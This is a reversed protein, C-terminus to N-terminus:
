SGTLCFDFILLGSTPRIGSEPLNSFVKGTLLSYYDGIYYGCDRGSAFTGNTAYFSTPPYSIFSTPGFAKTWVGIGNGYPQIQWISEPSVGVLLVDKPTGNARSLKGGFHFVVNRSESYWLRQGNM